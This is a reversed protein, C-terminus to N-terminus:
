WQKRGLAGAGNGHGRVVVRAPASPATHPTTPVCSAAPASSVSCTPPGGTSSCRAGAVFVASVTDHNRNVMRSMGGYQEATQEAYSGLSDDLQAPDVIVLDARDGRRLHGRRSGHIGHRCSDLVSSRAGHCVIVSAGGSSPFAMM